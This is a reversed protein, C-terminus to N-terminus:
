VWSSAWLRRLVFCLSLAHCQGTQQHMTYLRQQMAKCPKVVGAVGAATLQTAGAPQTSTRMM